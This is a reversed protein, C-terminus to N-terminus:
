TRNQDAQTEIYKSMHGQNRKSNRVYISYADLKDGLKNARHVPKKVPTDEVVDINEVAFTVKVGWDEVLEYKGDWKVLVNDNNSLMQHTRNKFYTLIENVEEADMEFRKVVPKETVFSEAM